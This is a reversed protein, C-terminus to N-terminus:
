VWCGWGSVWRFGKYVCVELFGHAWATNIYARFGLGGLKLDQDKLGSLRWLLMKCSEQASGIPKSKELRAGLLTPSPM